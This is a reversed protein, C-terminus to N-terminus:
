SPPARVIPNADKIVPSMLSSAEKRKGGSSSALLFRGDALWFSDEGSVSDALM